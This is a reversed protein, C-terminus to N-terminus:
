KPSDHDVLGSTAWTAADTRMSYRGGCEPCLGEEPLSVLSHGCRTCLRGGAARWAHGLRRRRARWWPLIVCVPVFGAVAPIVMSLGNKALGFYERVSVFGVTIAVVLASLGLAWM